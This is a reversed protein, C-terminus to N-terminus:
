KRAYKSVGEWYKELIDNDTPNMNGARKFADKIAARDKPPIDGTKMTMMQQNKSSGFLNFLGPQQKLELSQSFLTDIRQEIQEPSFKKGTAAQQNYIDNRVFKQISGLSAIAETDTKKPNPSIGINALRSNLSTNLATNNISGVSDDGAGNVDAVMKIIKKQTSQSFNQALFLNRQTEPMAAIEEPHMVAQYYAPMNDDNEGRSIARAFKLADDYAGPDYRSLNSVTPPDLDNFSGNNAILQKQAEALAQQGQEKRSQLVLDYQKEAQERTAAVAEPRPSAGLQSIADSVFELKTPVVPANAGSAYKANGNQVYVQTEKPLYSLWANPNGDAKAQDIAKQTAGPGANYAALAQQVNGFTKLQQTLYAQGLAKNYVPDTKFKNEDWEVGALKAAEPGTEPMIQAIGIAGKPSTVPTGDTNLQRGASEQGVVVNMLRDTETPALASQYKTLTNQTATLAAYGDMQHNMQGQVTLIGDGTMENKYKGFYQMAYTPNNNQLASQVVKEHVASVAQNMAADAENASMGSVLAQQYVSQRIGGFRQGTQPDVTGNIAQDIKGPNNWNLQADQESLKQAGQAVSMHYTRFEGLMHREVDGSFGTAIDGAQLAFMRKQQDNALGNGIEGMGQQLRQGYEEPLAVGNPRDLAQAGKLNAYGYDPNYTLDNARQRAQNIADAVRVQNAQQQMDVAVGSGSQGAAQTANGLEQMQRGPLSAETPSVVEPSLGGAQPANPMVQFEDYSPVRAM